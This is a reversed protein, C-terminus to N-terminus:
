QKGIPLKPVKPPIRISEGAAAPPIDEANSVGLEQLQDEIQDGPQQSLLTIADWFGQRLMRDQPNLRLGEQFAKAADSFARMHYLAYGKHYYGDAITPALSIVKEADDAGM